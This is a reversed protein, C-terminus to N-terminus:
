SSDPHADRRAHAAHAAYVRMCEPGVRERSFRGIATARGSLGLRVRLEADGTLRLMADALAAPDGMPTALADVGDTIIEAAGGANSAIVARGCSMAEVITRGFPEPQTSAHVVIDLARYAPAPDLRFPIFSVYANLRLERVMARLEQEGFQSDRTAYIPGGIIHFRLPLAPRADIARRAALLFVDHGKWRAYTAVLGVHVAGAPEPRKADGSPSFHNTDIGDYIVDIPVENSWGGLTERVDAAVARSVAIVRVGGCVALRLLRGAIGRRGIFDRVHWIIPTDDWRALRMLLHTKLGNSHIVDPRISRLVDRLEGAFRRVHLPARMLEAFSSGDGLQALQTPMPLLRPCAGLQRASELLPGDGMTIVHIELEANSARLSALLDLLSREGGGLAGIPNLYVIRM